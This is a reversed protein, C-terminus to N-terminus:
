KVAKPPLQIYLTFGASRSSKAWTRGGYDSVLANVQALGLGTGNKKNSGQYNLDFILATEHESIGEGKNKFIILSDNEVDTITIYIDEYTDESATSFKFMNDIVNDCIINLAMTSLYTEANPTSCHYKPHTRSNQVTEFRTKIYATFFHDLNIPLASTLPCTYIPHLCAKQEMRLTEIEENLLQNSVTLEQIRLALDDQQTEEPPTDIVDPEDNDIAPVADAEPRTKYTWIFLISITFLCLASPLPADLAIFSMGAIFCVSNLILPFIRKM